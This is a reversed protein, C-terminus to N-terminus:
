GLGVNVGNPHRSRSAATYDNGTSGATCPLNLDLANRPDGGGPCWYGIIVDPSPTNPPFKTFIQSCSVQDYWFAGRADNDADIGTLMEGFAM